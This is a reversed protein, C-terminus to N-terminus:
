FKVAVTGTAAIGEAPAVRGNFYGYRDFYANDTLNTVSLAADFYEHQYRIAADVTFFPDTKFANNDSVFEGSQAYIGAGISLGEFFGSQFAYEGWLRGSHRPVGAIANGAPIVGTGTPANKTYEADVFAYSGLFSIEPTANWVLDADFGRSRQEGNALSLFTAPDTVAVNKRDIQYAALTGSLGFGFDFKVGAEFQRSTEAEPTGLFQLFPQGRMGEGYSAFVSFEDSLDFVVGARPLLRTEETRAVAGAGRTEVVVRALRASALLHVRDHVTSQIQVFGGMTRNEVFQNNVGPGPDTYPIPFAPATLDLFVPLFAVDIFGEDDLASYDGGFLVKNKTPGYDFKALVSGSFSLEDQEQFLEGAALGWTSPPVFPVDASFGDAGVITQVNEEFESQSWRAMLNASWMDNFEHELRATVSATRSFSDEIDAPGIFLDSDIRFPGAITGTAPLGQYEPQEWSSYRGQLTLRTKEGKLMLTPNVSFRETEVVDIQHDQRTYEGTVRLLVNETIPQNLDFFPQILGDTGLSLGLEAFRKDEPLKSVINVVGGPLAGSGGGFLIASPGKLVEIREVNILSERDGPAYQYVTFGDQFQETQFGRLRTGDFAPTSREDNPQVAAVNRLAAGTSRVQQSDLVSRPIVTVSQPVEKIPTETGTAADTTLAQFGDVPGATTQEVDGTVVIDAGKLDPETETQAIAACPVAIIAAIVAVSSKLEM